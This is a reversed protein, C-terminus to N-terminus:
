QYYCSWMKYVGLKIILKHHFTHLNKSIEIIPLVKGDDNVDVFYQRTIMM